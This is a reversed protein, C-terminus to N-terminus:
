IRPYYGIESTLCSTQWIFWIISMFRQLHARALVSWSHKGWLMGHRRPSAGAEQLGGVHPVPEHCPVQSEVRQRLWQCAWSGQMSFVPGEWLGVLTFFIICLHIDCSWVDMSFPRLHSCSHFLSDTFWYFVLNIAYVHRYTPLFARDKSKGSQTRRHRQRILVNGVHCKMVFENCWDM